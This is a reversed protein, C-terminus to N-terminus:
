EEKTDVKVSSAVIEPKNENTTREEEQVAKKFSKIAGGLDRGINKLKDTGFVLLIIMIVVLWHWISLTGM